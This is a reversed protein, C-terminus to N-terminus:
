LKNVIHFKLFDKSVGVYNEIVPVKRFGLWYATASLSYESSNCILEKSYVPLPKEVVFHMQLNLYNPGEQVYMQMFM